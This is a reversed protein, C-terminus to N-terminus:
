ENVHLGDLSTELDEHTSLLERPICMAQSQTPLPKSRTTMGKIGGIGPGFTKKTLSVDETTAENDCTLNMRMVATFDSVSHTGLARSAKCAIKVRKRERPSLYSIKKAVLNTLCLKIKKLSIFDAAVLNAPGPETNNTIEKKDFM